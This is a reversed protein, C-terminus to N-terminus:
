SYKIVSHMKNNVANTRVINQESQKKNQSNKARVRYKTSDASKTVTCKNNVTFKVRQAIKMSQIESASNKM